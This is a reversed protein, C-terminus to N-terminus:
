LRRFKKVPIIVDYYDLVEKERVGSAVVKRRSYPLHRTLLPLRTSSVKLISNLNKILIFSQLVGSGAGPLVWHMSIVVLWGGTFYSCMRREERGAKACLISVWHVWISTYHLVKWYARVGLDSPSPFITKRSDVCTDLADRLYYDYITFSKFNNCNM